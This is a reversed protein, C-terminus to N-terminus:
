GKNVPRERSQDRAGLSRSPEARDRPMEEIMEKVHADRDALQKPTMKAELERFNRRKARRRCVQCAGCECTVPRGGLM